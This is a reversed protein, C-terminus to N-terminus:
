GNVGQNEKEGVMPPNKERMAITKYYEWKAVIEPDQDPPIWGHEIWRKRVDTASAPIYIPDSM